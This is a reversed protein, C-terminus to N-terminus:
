RLFTACTSPASRGFLVEKVDWGKKVRCYITQPSVNLKSAWEAVTLNHDEYSLRVNNTKNNQQEKPTAWRCNEPTYNGAVDIRDVSHRPSPKSGMDELFNEFSHLWRACVKVGSGGYLPYYQHGEYTCRQVMAAWAIYEPSGSKGHTTNKAVLLEKRLCGCSSSNGYMFNSFGVQVTAGCDCVCNVKKGDRSTAVLRGRRVGSVDMLPKM